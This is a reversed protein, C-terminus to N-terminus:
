NNPHEIVLFQGAPQIGLDTSLGDPWEITLSDVQAATGLGFIQATPNQSIFNSGIVIERMQTIGNVEVWIRAGTAETNPAQGVLRVSLFNNGTAENRFFSGANNENQHWLFIDTDGDNDFDACVVGRGQEADALGLELAQEEFGGDGDAVFARSTDQRFDGAYVLGEWGNTHYIDLHGDNNLDAFCSGWGWGGDVVGAEDTADVFVGNDNRYLRNGTASPNETPGYISSVFWDLDGDNDYDGVASGMGNHDDIVSVDTANTFTGDQDNIFVQTTNFDAVSLIDPYLDDNVRAFTPAFSYDIGAGNEANPDPLHVISPAVEADISVSSFRIGSADSDNRWLNYTDRIQTPSHRTTWHAVFLDLDGDLDYDGFAASITDVGELAALGAGATVDTFTGDGNNSYILDPDGFIGGLFLDLDGDGDIDAFTPGSHYYNELVPLNTPDTWAVGAIEAVDEFVNNGMNRYLLNPLLDGRVVFLDVDGDLDYDGAAVGGAIRPLELLRNQWRTSLITFSIGSGSTADVFQSGPPTAPVPTNDPAAPSGAGGCGVLIVSMLSAWRPLASSEGANSLNAPTPEIM